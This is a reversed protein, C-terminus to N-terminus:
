RAYDFAHLTGGFSTKLNSLLTNIWRLQPLDNPHKGGTVIAHHSCGATTVSRFCTLGDSLVASGSALNERAWNGIADSSFGIM